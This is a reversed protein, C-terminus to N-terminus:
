TSPKAPISTCRNSDCSTASSSTGFRWTTTARRSVKSTSTAPETARGVFVTQDTSADSLAVFPERGPRQLHRDHLPGVGGLQPGHRHDGRLGPQQVATALVRFRVLLRHPHEPAGLAARRACRHWRRGRRDAGDAATWRRDDDDPVLPQEPRQQVAPGAPPRRHLVHRSRPQQDRRLRPDGSHELDQLDRRVAPQQQLRRHGRSRDTGRARGPVRRPRGRRYGSRREDLRQRQLRVRPDERAAVSSGREAHDSRCQRHREWQRRGCRAAHPLEGVDQPRSFAGLDPLPRGAADGHSPGPQRGRRDPQQEGHEALAPRYAAKHQGPQRHLHLERHSRGVTGPRQGHRSLRRWLNDGGARTARDHAVGHRAPLRDRSGARHGVGDVIPPPEEEM